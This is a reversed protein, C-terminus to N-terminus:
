AFVAWPPLKDMIFKREKTWAEMNRNFHPYPVGKTVQHDPVAYSTAFTYTNGVMYLATMMAAIVAALTSVIGPVQLLTVQSDIEHDYVITCTISSAGVATIQATERYGDFGEIRVWDDETFGTVSDVGIEISSGASVAASTETTTTTDELWGYTYKLMCNPITTSEYFYIKGATNKLKIIGTPEFYIDDIDISTSDIEMKSITLLPIKDVFHLNKDNGEFIDIKQKPVCTTKIIRDVERDAEELIRAMKTADVETSTIGVKDYVYDATTYTM